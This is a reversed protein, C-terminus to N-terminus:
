EGWSLVLELEKGEPLDVRVQSLTADYRAEVEASPKSEVTVTAARRKACFRAPCSIVLEGGDPADLTLSLTQSSLDVNSAKPTGPIREAYPELMAVLHDLEEGEDGIISLEYVKTSDYSWRGFGTFDSRWLSLLDLYYQSINADSANGGFEGIWLPVAAATADEVHRQYLTTLEDLRTTYAGGAFVTPPYYHPAYVLGEFDPKRISQDSISGSLTGPEYFVLVKPAVERVAPILRDYFPGLVDDPDEGSLWPENFLDVGVLAPHEGLEKAVTKWMEAFATQVGNTDEWFSTFQCQVGESFYNQFWPKRDEFAPCAPNRAWEPPGDGEALDTAEFGFLDQHMDLLVHIDRENAWDLIDRIKGLYALDYEGRKPEVWRWFLTLRIVNLGWDDRLRLVAERDVWPLGDPSRKATHAVNVGRLILARGQADRIFKADTTLSGGANMSADPSGAELAADMAPIAADNVESTKDSNCAALLLCAVITHPRM